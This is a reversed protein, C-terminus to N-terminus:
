REDKVIIASVNPDGILSVRRSFEIANGPSLNRFMGIAESAAQEHVQKISCDEGWNSGVKVQVTVTVTATALHKCM